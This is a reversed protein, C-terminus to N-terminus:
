NTILKADFGYIKAGTYDANKNDGVHLIASKSMLEIKNVENYVLEFIKYNPKSFGCEDSYHKSIPNKVGM